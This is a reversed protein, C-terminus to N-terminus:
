LVYAGNIIHFTWNKTENAILCTKREKFCQISPLVGLLSRSSNLCYIVVSLSRIFEHNIWNNAALPFATHLHLNTKYLIFNVLDGSAVVLFCVVSFWCSNYQTFCFFDNCVTLCYIICCLWSVSPVLCLSFLLILPLLIVFLICLPM